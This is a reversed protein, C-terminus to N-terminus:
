NLKFNKKVLKLNVDAGCGILLEVVKRHANKAALHLATEGNEDQMNILRFKESLDDDAICKETLFKSNIIIESM